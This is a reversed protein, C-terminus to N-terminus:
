GVKTWQRNEDEDKARRGISWWYNFMAPLIKSKLVDLRGKVTTQSIFEAKFPNLIAREAANYICDRRIRRPIQVTAEPMPIDSIYAEPLSTQSTPLLPCAVDGHNSTSLGCQLWTSVMLLFRQLM